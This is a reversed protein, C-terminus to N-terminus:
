LLSASLAFLAGRNAMTKTVHMHVPIYWGLICHVFLVAIAAYHTRIPSQVVPYSNHIHVLIYAHMYM